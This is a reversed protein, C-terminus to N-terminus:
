CIKFGHSTTGLRTVVGYGEWNRSYGLLKMDRAVYSGLTYGTARGASQTVWCTRFGYGTARVYLLGKYTRGLRTASETPGFDKARLGGSQVGRYDRLWILLEAPGFTTFRLGWPTTKTAWGGVM